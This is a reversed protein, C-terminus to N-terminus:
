TLILTENHIEENIPLDANSIRLLKQHLIDKAM